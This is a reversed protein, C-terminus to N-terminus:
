RSPLVEVMPIHMAPPLRKIAPYECFIIRKCYEEKTESLEEVIKFHRQALGNFEQFFLTGKPSTIYEKDLLWGKEDVIERFAGKTTYHWKGAKDQILRNAGSGENLRM